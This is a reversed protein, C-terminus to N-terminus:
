TTLVPRDASRVVREAVSGIPIRNSGTRGHSGLVILDADIEAAYDVIEEHPVGHCVRTVVSLGSDTAQREVDAILETGIDEMQTMILEISSLAPDGYRRTDVVFMTHLTSDNQAALELGQEVARAAPESGDTPVLITKYM